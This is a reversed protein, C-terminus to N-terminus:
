YSQVQGWRTPSNFCPDSGWMPALTQPLPSVNLASLSVASRYCGLHFSFWLTRAVSTWVGSLSAPERSPVDAPLQLKPITSCDWPLSQQQSCLSLRPFTPSSVTTPFPQPPFCPLWPLLTISSLWSYPTSGDHYDREGWVSAALCYLRQGM